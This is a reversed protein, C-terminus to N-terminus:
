KINYTKLKYQLRQRSLGLRAATKTVNGKEKHYASRLLATEVEKLYVDLPKAEEYLAIFYDDVELFYHQPLDSLRLPGDNKEKLNVASEIINRLERVNGRFEHHMLDEMLEPEFGPIDKGTEENFQQLFYESLEKIDEPRERLAPLDLRLVNLRYFLDQRLRQKKMQEVPSINTAAIIRVNVFIDKDGGLRRVYGEQLVRLLRAQLELSMSNIEDLFLTGGQAQEFLGKMTLAGTFAGKVTGFLISELLAPPIAGCDVALFPRESRMSAHHISQAFLEKGTGTAGVIMVSADSQAYKKATRVATRMLESSGVISDFTYRNPSKKPPHDPPAGSSRVPLSPDAPRSIEIAGRLEDDVFIPYTSNNASIKEGRYNSYDQLTLHVPEKTSIAKLLTSNNESLRPFVRKLHTGIVEQSNLGEIAMMASNYYQTVGRADVVHVGEDIQEILCELLAELFERDM